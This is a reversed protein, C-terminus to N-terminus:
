GQGWFMNYGKVIAIVAIIGFSYQFIPPFISPMYLISTLTDRIFNAIIDILHLLGGLVPINFVGTNYDELTV